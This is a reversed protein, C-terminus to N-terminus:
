KNWSWISAEALEADSPMQSGVSRRCKESKSCETLGVAQLKALRVLLLEADSVNNERLHQLANRSFRFTTAQHAAAESAVVLLAIRQAKKEAWYSGALFSLGATALVIAISLLFTRRM